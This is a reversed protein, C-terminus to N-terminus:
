YLLSIKSSWTQKAVVGLGSTISGQLGDGQPKFAWHLSRLLAAAQVQRGPRNPFGYMSHLGSHVIFWSHEGVRAQTLWFHTSGQGPTQPWFAKQVTEFWLGTHM